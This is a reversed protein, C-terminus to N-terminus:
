FVHRPGAGSVGFLESSQHLRELSPTHVDGTSDQGAFRHGLDDSLYFPVAVVQNDDGHSCL